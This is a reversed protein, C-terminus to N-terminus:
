LTPPRGGRQRPPIPAPGAGAKWGTQPQRYPRCQPGAVSWRKHRDKGSKGKTERSRTYPTRFSFHSRGWWWKRRVLSLLLSSYSPASALTNPRMRQIAKMHTDSASFRPLKSLPMLLLGWTFALSLKVVIPSALSPPLGPCSVCLQPSAPLDALVYSEPAGPVGLRPKVTADAHSSNPDERRRSEARAASFPPTSPNLGARHGPSRAGLPSQLAKEQWLPPTQRAGQPVPHWAWFM